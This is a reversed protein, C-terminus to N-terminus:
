NFIIANKEMLKVKEIFIKEQANLNINKQETESYLDLENEIEM